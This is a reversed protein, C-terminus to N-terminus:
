LFDCSGVVHRPIRGVKRMLMDDVGCRPIKSTVDIVVPQEKQFIDSM